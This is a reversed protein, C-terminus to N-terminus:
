EKLTQFSTFDVGNDVRTKSCSKGSTKKKYGCNSGFSETSGFLLVGQDRDNALSFVGVRQGPADLVFCFVLICALPPAETYGTVAGCSCFGM